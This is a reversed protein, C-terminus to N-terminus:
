GVLTNLNFGGDVVFESGTTFSSEESALFSVAKAIEEPTGFKKLPVKGQILTAVQSLQEAPMGVKSWLPTNVPG